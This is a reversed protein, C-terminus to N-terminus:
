VVASRSGVRGLCEGVIDRQSADPVLVLSPAVADDDPTVIPLDSGALRQGALAPDPDLVASVIGEDDDLADLFAVTTPVAGWVAVVGGGSRNREIHHRQDDLLQARRGVHYRVAEVIEAPSEEVAFPASTAAAADVAEAQLRGSPLTRIARVGFGARRLTRALSGISFWYVDDISPDLLPSRWAPDADAVDVVVSGDALTTGHEVLERGLPVAVAAADHAQHGLDTVLGCSPCATLIRERREAPWTSSALVTDPVITVPHRDLVEGATDGCTRCAPVVVPELPRRRRGFLKM